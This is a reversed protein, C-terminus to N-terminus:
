RDAVPLNDDTKSCPKAPVKGEPGPLLCDGGELVVRRHRVGVDKHWCSVSYAKSGQEGKGELGLPRHQQCTYAGERIGIRSHMIDTEIWRTWGSHVGVSATDLNSLEEIILWLCRADHWINTHTDKVHLWTGQM